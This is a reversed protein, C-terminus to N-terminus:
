KAGRRDLHFMLNDPAVNTFTGDGNNLFIKDSDLGGPLYMDDWGDGNLDFVVVGPGADGAGSSRMFLGAPGEDHKFLFQASATGYFTLIVIVSVALRKMLSKLFVVSM